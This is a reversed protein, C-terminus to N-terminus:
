TKQTKKNKDTHSCGPSLAAIIKLKPSSESSKSFNIKLTQILFNIKILKM